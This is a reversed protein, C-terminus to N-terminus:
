KDIEFIVDGDEFSRQGAKRKLLYGMPWGKFVRLLYKFFRWV